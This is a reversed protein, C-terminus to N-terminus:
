RAASEVCLRPTKLMWRRDRIRSLVGSAIVAQGFPPANCCRRSDDGVCVLSELVLEDRGGGVAIAVPDKRCCEGPACEALRGVLDRSAMSKVGRGRRLWALSLPGRVSVSKDAFHDAKTELEAWPVAALDGACVPL